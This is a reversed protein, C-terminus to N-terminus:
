SIISNKPNIYDFEATISPLAPFFVDAIAAADDGMMIADGGALHNNNGLYSYCM